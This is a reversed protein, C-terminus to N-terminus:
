AVNSPVRYLYKRGMNKKKIETQLVQTFTTYVLLGILLVAMIM